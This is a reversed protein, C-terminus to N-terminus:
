RGELAEKCLEEIRNLKEGTLTGYGINTESHPYGTCLKSLISRMVQTCTVQQRVEGVAFSYLQSYMLYYLRNQCM